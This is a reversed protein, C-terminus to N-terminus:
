PQPHPNGALISRTERRDIYGTYAETLMGPLFEINERQFGMAKHVKIAGESFPGIYCVRGIDAQRAYEAAAEHIILGIKGRLPQAPDPNAERLMVSVFGRDLEGQYGGCAVGCLTDGHWVAINFAAPNLFEGINEIIYGESLSEPIFCQERWTGYYRDAVDPHEVFYPIWQTEWARMARSDIISLKLEPGCAAELNKGASELAGMLRFLQGCSEADGIGIHPHAVRDFPLTM